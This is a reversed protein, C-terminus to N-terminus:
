RLIGRVFPWYHPAETSDKSESSYTTSFITLKRSIQSGEQSMRTISVTYKSMYVYPTLANRRVPGACITAM